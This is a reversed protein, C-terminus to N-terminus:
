GDDPCILDGFVFNLDDSIVSLDDYGSTLDDYNPRLDDYFLVETSIVGINEVSAGFM